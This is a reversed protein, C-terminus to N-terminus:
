EIVEDATALLATPVTLGLLKATKLNVVLDFKTPQLIPLESPKAGALIRGAYLGVQRYQELLSAGYSILGGAAAFERTSYLAPLNHRLTSAALQETASNFLSDTNILLAGVQQQVAATIGQEIENESEARLVHIARLGLSRAADRVNQLSQETEPTAPNVLLAVESADPLLRHLLDLSKAAIEVVMRTVGTIHGGPQNLSDVLGAAVPDGGIQFVIPITPTANKTALVPAETGVAAIVAVQQQVLEAALTPLKGYDGEAWRYEVTVNQGEVYGSERLGKRFATLRDTFPGPSGSYLFGLVPLKGPRQARAVLPWAVALGSVGKFFDRRRM